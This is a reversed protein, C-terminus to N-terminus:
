PHGKCTTQLLAAYNYRYLNECQYRDFNNENVGHLSSMWVKVWSWLIEISNIHYGQENVFEREHIIIVVHEYGYDSLKKYSTWGHSIIRVRGSLPVNKKIINTLHSVTEM